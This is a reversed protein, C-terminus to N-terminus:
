VAGSGLLATMAARYDKAWCEMLKERWLRWQALQQELEAKTEEHAAMEEGWLKSMRSVEHFTAEKNSVLQQELSHTQERAYAQAFTYIEGRLEHSLDSFDHATDKDYYYERASKGESPEVDCVHRGAWSCGAFDCSFVDRKPEPLGEPEKANTM